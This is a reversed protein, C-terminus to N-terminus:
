MKKYGKKEGNEELSILSFTINIEGSEGSMWIYKRKVEKGRYWFFYIKEECIIKLIKECESVNFEEREGGGRERERM